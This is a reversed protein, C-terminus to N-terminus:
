VIIAVKRVVYTYYVASPVLGAGEEEVDKWRAEAWVYGYGEKFRGRGRWV